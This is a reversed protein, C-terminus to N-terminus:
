KEELYKRKLGVIFIRKNTTEFLKIIEYYESLFDADRIAVEKFNVFVLNEDRYLLNNLHINM